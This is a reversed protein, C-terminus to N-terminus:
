IWHREPLIAKVRDCGKCNGIAATHSGDDRKYGAKIMCDFCMAASETSSEKGTINM